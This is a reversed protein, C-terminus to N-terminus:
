PIVEALLPREATPAPPPVCTPGPADEPRELLEGVTVLEFGRQRLGKIVAPLAEATPFRKRNMHMVVIGGPSAKKLVWDVVRPATTNEDPDGSPLDFNITTLAARSALWAVRADVEGFPPRFYRPVRGTLDYVARQTRQLEELVRTDEKVQPMHVHSFTHNGFEFGPHLALEQLLRANAEAWGGGIFLTAPTNTERLTRIIREDYENRRTTCADFTLAIRRHRRSGNLVIPATVCAVPEPAAAVAPASPPRPSELEEPLTRACGSVALVVWVAM